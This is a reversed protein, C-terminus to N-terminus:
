STEGPSGPEGLGRGSERRPLHLTVTTGGDPGSEALAGGGHLEAISRVIALGLGVGQGPSRAGEVRYFRDFLRPLHEQAIGCGTDSVAVVIGAPEIGASVTIRGGSPTHALANTILNGLARQFLTRELPFSVPDPAEVALRVGAETASAEFFDCIARLEKVVDLPETALKRGPDEARALFLLREILRSLRGASELCIALAERDGERSPESQLTVEAVNRLAHVPTRLEHAIDASFRELREFSGQLRSLMANFTAALDHLEAPLAQPAIREGMRSPGIRRATAVIEGIPKLGRRAIAAGVAASAVISPVLIFGMNRRYRGLVEFERTRDFGFEYVRSGVKRSKVRSWRGNPNLYDVGGAEAMPAPPLRTSAQDTADLVDGGADSVRAAGDWFEDPDDAIRGTQSFEAELRSLGVDLYSDAEADSWAAVSRYLSTTAVLLLASASAAYWAAMWTAMSRRSRGPNSSM